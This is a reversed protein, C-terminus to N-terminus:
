EEGFINFGAGIMGSYLVPPIYLNDDGLYFNAVAHSKNNITLRGAFVINVVSGVPFYFTIGEHFVSLANSILFIGYQSDNLKYKEWAYGFGSALELQFATGGYRWCLGSVYNSCRFSIDRENMTKNTTELFLGFGKGFVPYSLTTGAVYQGRETILAFFEKYSYPKASTSGGIDISLKLQQSLGQSFPILLISLVVYFIKM